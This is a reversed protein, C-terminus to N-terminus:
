KFAFTRFKKLFATSTNRYYSHLFHYVFPNSLIIVLSCFLTLSLPFGIQTKILIFSRRIEFIHTFQPFFNYVPYFSTISFIQCLLSLFQLSFCSVVSFLRNLIHMVLNLSLLRVNKYKQICEM